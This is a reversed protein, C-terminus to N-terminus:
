SGDAAVAIGFDRDNGGLYTGYLLGGAGAVAPDIKALFVDALQGGSRRTSQYANKTPFDDSGTAGTLYARGAGDVAFGGRMWDLGSGGLYTLYRLSAAGSAATDFVALFADESGQTRDYAGTTTPLDGSRTTGAVYALNGPGLAVGAHGWDPESGGLYTSYLLSSGTPGLKALFADPLRHRAHITFSLATGTGTAPKSLTVGGQGSVSAITTGAQIHTGSIALGVDGSDDDLFGAAGSRYTTSGATSSGDGFTEDTGNCVPGTGTGCTADFASATVPFDSSKTTGSVYVNGTGDVALTAREEPHMVRVSALGGSDEYGSGGLYTSWVLSAAGSAATNLKAVFRDNHGGLTTDLPSGAIPFTASMSLGTVYANGAGDAAVGNASSHPSSGGLWTGYTIVPDIVLPLAPDYHGLWFGVQGDEGVGFAGPVERRENGSGQYAVPRRQRLEGAVTALVLDGDEALTPDAGSFRLAIAGPDAGPAVEFDYEVAGDREYFVLDVGPYLNRYRVSAYSPVDTHWGAPDTGRLYNSVGGLRQGPELPTTGDAGVFAMRVVAPGPALSFVAETSSLFLQFNGGRALFRVEPDFQGQNAEFHLPQGSLAESAQEPSLLPAAAGPEAPQEASLGTASSAAPAAFAAASPLLAVLVTLAAIGARAGGGTHGQRTM